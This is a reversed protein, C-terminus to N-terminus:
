LDFDLDEKFSRCFLGLVRGIMYAFYFGLGILVSWAAPGGLMKILGVDMGKQAATMIAPGAWKMVAVIGGVYMGLYLLVILFLFIYHGIVRGISRFVRIVNLGDLAHSSALGIMNMPVGFTLLALVILPGPSGLADLDAMSSPLHGTKAVILLTVVAAYFGILAIYGALAAGLNIVNWTLSPPQEGGSGTTRITDIMAYYAVSGFYIGQAAFMVTLFTAVWGMDQKEAIPNLGAGATFALVALLPVAITALAIGMGLLIWVLAPIPYLFASGFGTYFSVQTKIRDALGGTYRGKTEPVIDVGPIATDCDRCILESYIDESKVKKGCKPCTRITPDSRSPGAEVGAGAAQAEALTMRKGKQRYLVEGADELNELSDLDLAPGISAPEKSAAPLAIVGKCGPCKVKRGAWDDPAQLVKKCNPCSVKM